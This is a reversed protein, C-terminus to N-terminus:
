VVSIKWVRKKIENENTWDSEGKPIWLLLLNPFSNEEIEASYLYEGTLANKITYTDDIEQNILWMAAKKEKAINENEYNKTFVYRRDEDKTFTKSTQLYEIGNETKTTIFFALQDDDFSEGASRIIWNQKKSSMWVGPESNSLFLEPNMRMFKGEFFKNEIKVNM